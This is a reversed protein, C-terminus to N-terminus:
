LWSWRRLMAPLPLAKKKEGLGTVDLTEAFINLAFGSKSHYMNLYHSLPAGGPQWGPPIRHVRHIKHGPFKYDEIYM